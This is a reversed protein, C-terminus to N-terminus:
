PGQAVEWNPGTFDSTTVTVTLRQDAVAHVGIQNLAAADLALADENLVWGYSAYTGLHHGAVAVDVVGPGNTDVNLRDPASGPLVTVVGSFRGDPQAHPGGAVVDTRAPLPTLQAPRPPLPYEDFPVAQYMASAITGPRRESASLPHVGVGDDGAIITISVTNPRDLVIESGWEGRSATADAPAGLSGGCGGSGIEHGNVVIAVSTQPDTCTTTLALEYSTPVVTYTLTGHAPSTAAGGGLKRGGGAYEPNIVMPTPTPSPGPHSASASEGPTLFDSHLTRHTPHRTVVPVVVALVIVAALLVALRRRRHTAVRVGIRVQALREPNDPADDAHAALVERLDQETIM